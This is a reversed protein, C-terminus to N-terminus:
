VVLFSKPPMVLFHFFIQSKGQLFMVCLSTLIQM